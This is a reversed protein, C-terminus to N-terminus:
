GRRLWGNPISVDHSVAVGGERGLDPRMVQERGLGHLLAPHDLALRPVDLPERAHFQEHALDVPPPILHRFVGPLDHDEAVAGRDAPEGM